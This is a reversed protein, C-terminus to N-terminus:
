NRDTKICNKKSGTAPSTSSDPDCLLIGPGGSWGCIGRRVLIEFVAEEGSLIEDAAEEGSLLEMKLKREQRPEMWLKREKLTEVVADERVLLEM